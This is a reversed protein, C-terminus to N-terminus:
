LIKEVSNSSKPLPYSVNFFEQFFDLIDAAEQLAFDGEGAEIADPRAHVDVVIGREPSKMSVNKFNSIVFAVLYTSMPLTEM